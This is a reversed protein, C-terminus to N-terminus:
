SVEAAAQKAEKKKKGSGLALNLRVQVQMTFWPEHSAGEVNVLEYNPLPHGERQCFEKM